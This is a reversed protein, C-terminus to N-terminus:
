ERGARLITDAAHLIRRANTEPISDPQLWNQICGRAFEAEELGLAELCILAVAEAKIEKRRM